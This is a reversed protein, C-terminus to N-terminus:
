RKTEGRTEYKSASLELAKAIKTSDFHCGLCFIASTNVSREKTLM